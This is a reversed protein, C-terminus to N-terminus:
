YRHKSKATPFKSTRLRISPLGSHNELINYTANKIKTEWCPRVAKFRTFLSKKQFVTLYIAIRLFITGTEFRAVREKPYRKSIVNSENSVGTGAVVDNFRFRVVRALEAPNVQRLFAKLFLRYLARSFRSGRTRANYRTVIISSVPLFGFMWLVVRVEDKRRGRKWAITSIWVGNLWVGTKQFVGGTCSWKRGVQSKWTDRFDTKTTFVVSVVTKWPIETRSDMKGASTKVGVRFGLPTRTTPPRKM